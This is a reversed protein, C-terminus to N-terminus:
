SQCHYSRLQFPTRRAPLKEWALPPSQLPLAPPVASFQNLSRTCTQQRTDVTLAANLGHGLSSPMWPITSRGVRACSTAESGRGERFPEKLRPDRPRCRLNVTMQRTCAGGAGAKPLWSRQSLRRSCRSGVEVTASTAFM